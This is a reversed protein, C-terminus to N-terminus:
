KSNVGRGIRDTMAAPDPVRVGAAGGPWLQHGLHRVARGRHRGPSVQRRLRRGGRHAGVARTRSWQLLPERYVWGYYILFAPVTLLGSLVLGIGGAPLSSRLSWECVGAVAIAVLAPLYSIDRFFPTIEKGIKKRALYICIVFSIVLGIATGLPVGIVGVSLALPVTCAVNVAVGIGLYWSEIEPMGVVKATVDVIANLLLPATGIVL